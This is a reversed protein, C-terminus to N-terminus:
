MSNSLFLCEEFILKSPARSSQSCVSSYTWVGAAPPDKASSNLNCWPSPLASASAAVVGTATYTTASGASLAAGTVSVAVGASPPAAAVETTTSPASLCRKPTKGACEAIDTAAVPPPQLSYVSYKVVSSCSRAGASRFTRALSPLALSPPPSPALMASASPPPSPPPPPPPSSPPPLSSPQQM